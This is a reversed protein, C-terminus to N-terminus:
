SSQWFSSVASLDAIIALISFDQAFRDLPLHTLHSMNRSVASIIASPERESYISFILM